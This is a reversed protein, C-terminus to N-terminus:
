GRERADTMGDVKCEKSIEGGMSAIAGGRHFSGSNWGILCDMM